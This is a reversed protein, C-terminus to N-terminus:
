QKRIPMRPDWETKRLITKRWLFGVVLVRWAANWESIHIPRFTNSGCKCLSELPSRPVRGYVQYHPRVRRCRDCALFIRSVEPTAFVAVEEAQEM